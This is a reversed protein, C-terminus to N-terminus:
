DATMERFLECMEPIAEWTWEDPGDEPSRAFMGIDVGERAWEALLSEGTFPEPILEHDEDIPEKGTVGFRKGAVCLLFRLIGRHQEWCLPLAGMNRDACSGARRCSARQCILHTGFGNVFKVLIARVSRLHPTRDYYPVSTDFLRLDPADPM